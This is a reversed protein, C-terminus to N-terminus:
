KIICGHLVSNGKILYHVPTFFIKNGNIRFHVSWFIRSKETNKLIWFSCIKTAQPPCFSPSLIVQSMWCNWKTRRLHWLCKLLVYHCYENHCETRRLHWLCVSLLLIYENLEGCHIGCMIQTNNFPWRHRYPSHHLLSMPRGQIVSCLFLKSCHCLLLHCPRQKKFICYNAEVIFLNKLFKWLRAYFCLFTYNVFFM